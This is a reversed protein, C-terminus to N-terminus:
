ANPVELRKSAVITVNELVMEGVRASEQINKWSCGTYLIKRDPKCIVFSFDDLDYFNIGDRIAADTAYIRSLELTYQVQGALTAVPEEEGFAEVAVSNKAARASYSQCVAVKVDDVEIYIDRSTPFVSM